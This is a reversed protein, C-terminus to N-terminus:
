FFLLCRVLGTHFFVRRTSSVRNFDEVFQTSSGGHSSDQPGNGM